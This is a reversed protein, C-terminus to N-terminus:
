CAVGYEEFGAFCTLARFPRACRLSPHVRLLRSLPFVCRSLSLRVCHALSALLLTLLNREARFRRARM